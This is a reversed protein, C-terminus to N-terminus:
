CNLSDPLRRRQSDHGKRPATLAVKGASGCSFRATQHDIIVLQDHLEDGTRRQAFGTPPRDVAIATVCPRIPSASYVSPRIQGTAHDDHSLKLPSQPVRVGRSFEHVSRDFSFIGAPQSNAISEIASNRRDPRELGNCFSNAGPRPTDRRLDAARGAWGEQSPRFPDRHIKV